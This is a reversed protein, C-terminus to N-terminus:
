LPEPRALNHSRRPTAMVSTTAKPRARRGMRAVIADTIGDSLVCAVALVIYLEHAVGTKADRHHVPPVGDLLHRLADVVRREEVHVLGGAVRLRPEVRGVVRRAGICGSPRLRSSYLVM